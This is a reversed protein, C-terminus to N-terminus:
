RDDGDARRHADGASAVVTGHIKIQYNKSPVSLSDNLKIEPVVFGYPARVRAADRAVRHAIEHTDRLIQARSSSASAPARHGGDEAIGEGFQASEDFRKPPRRAEAAKEAEAKRKKSSAPDFLRRLGSCGLLRAFPLFPLGPM